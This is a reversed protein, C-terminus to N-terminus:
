DFAACVADLLLVAARQEEHERDVSADAIEVVIEKRPLSATSLATLLRASLMERTEMNVLPRGAQARATGVACLRLLVDEDGLLEAPDLLRLRSDPASAHALNVVRVAVRAGAEDDGVVVVPAHSLVEVARAPALTAQSHAGAEKGEWVHRLNSLVRVTESGVIGDSVLGANRQFERVARETFAGFIGDERGCAFGLVNLAGQLVAVDHGHLHPLRLYLMRDGLTFGADVLSSWTQEGIVGDEDLGRTRQFTRVAEETAGLFVGDVGTPGLDYGLALLRRQVDEVAPGRAGPLVPKM